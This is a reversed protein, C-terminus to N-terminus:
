QRHLSAHRVDLTSSVLCLMAGLPIAYRLGEGSTLVLVLTALGLIVLAIRHPLSPSSATEEFLWSMPTTAMIAFWSGLLLFPAHEFFLFLLMPGFM